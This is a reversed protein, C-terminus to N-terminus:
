SLYCMLRKKDQGFDTNYQEIKEVIESAYWKLRVKVEDNYKFNTYQNYEEYMKISRSAHLIRNKPNKMRKTWSGRIGRRYVSMEDNLYYMLGKSSCLLSLSLDGVPADFYWKPANELVSARFMFSSTHGFYGGGVIVETASFVKNKNSLKIVNSFNDETNSKKVKTAHVCLMIDLDNDLIAVQKQLKNNCTWYDDGECLAIYKGKARLNNFSGIRKVKAYQNQTQYIPKILNPYKEEYKRIIDQTNDTSADDHILIEFPFDTEQMLFGEIADAIYQEHNYTICNISVKPTKDSGWNAMIEKETRLGEM